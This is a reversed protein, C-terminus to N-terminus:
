QDKQFVTLQNRGGRKAKYLAIDGERTMQTFTKEGRPASSVGLSITLSIRVKKFEMVSQEVKMRLREAVDLARPLEM